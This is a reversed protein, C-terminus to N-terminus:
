REPVGAPVSVDEHFLVERGYGALGSSERVHGTRVGRVGKGRGGPFEFRGFRCGWEKPRRRERVDQGVDVDIAVHVVAVAVVVVPVAVVAVFVVDDVDVEAAVAVETLVNAAVSIRKVERGHERARRGRRGRRLAYEHRTGCVHKRRPVNVRVDVAFTVGGPNHTPVFDDEGLSAARFLHTRTGYTKRDEDVATMRGQRSVSPEVGSHQGLLRKIWDWSYGFM